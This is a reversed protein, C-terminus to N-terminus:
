ATSTFAEPDPARTMMLSHRLALLELLCPRREGLALAQEILRDRAARGLDVCPDAAVLLDTGVEVRPTPDDFLCLHSQGLPLPADHEGFFLHAVLLRLRRV